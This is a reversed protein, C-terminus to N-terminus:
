NRATYHGERDCASNDNSRAHSLTKSPKSLNIDAAGKRLENEILPMLLSNIDQSNSKPQRRPISTQPLTDHSAGGQTLRDSPFVLGPDAECL